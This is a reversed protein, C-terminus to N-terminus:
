KERYQAEIEQWRGKINFYRTLAQENLEISCYNYRNLMPEIQGRNSENVGFIIGIRKGKDIENLQRVEIGKLESPNGTKDSVVVATICSTLQLESLQDLLYKAREGAGYLYVSAGQAKDFDAKLINRYYRKKQAVYEEWTMLDQFWNKYHSFNEIKMRELLTSACCDNGGNINSCFLSNEKANGIPIDKQTPLAYVVPIHDLIENYKLWLDDQNEAISIMNEKRFWKESGTGPPYCVGGVGIACLDMRPVDAYEDLQGDWKRYYELRNEQKLVIRVRRASIAYSFRQCENVLDSIMSEAYVTDDDVTIVTDERHQQLAYYYKKHSKLNGEVWEIRFGRKGVLERLTDPLNDETEPFEELSLYLIVEDPHMTQKFLSEVVLHVSNIRPPYSTFSVILGM